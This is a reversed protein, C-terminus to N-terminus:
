VNSKEKFLKTRKCAKCTVFMTIPTTRITDPSVLGCAPVLENFKNVTKFHIKEEIEKDKLM